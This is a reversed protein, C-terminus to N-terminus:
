LLIEGIELNFHALIPFLMDIRLPKPLHADIYGRNNLINEDISWNARDIRKTARMGVFDPRDLYVVRNKDKWLYILARLLSEDSFSSHPNNISEKRDIVRLNIWQKLTDEYNLNNPNIIEKFTKGMASTYIMPFKGAELSNDYANRGIAAMHDNPINELLRMLFDKQLPLLDVDNVVCIEKPYFTSVYMRSVKAQNGVPIGNITKFLFVEGFNKMKKVLEDDKNKNTIFALSVKCGFIKKTVQAVLPWSNMYEPNEDTSYVFRDIKM